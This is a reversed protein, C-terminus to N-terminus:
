SLRVALPVQVAHETRIEHSNYRLGVAQASHVMESGADQVISLNLQVLLLLLGLQQSITATARLNLKKTHSM